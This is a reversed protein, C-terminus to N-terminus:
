IRQRKSWSVPLMKTTDDIRQAALPLSPLLRQPLLLPSRLVGGVADDNGWGPPCGWLPATCVAPHNAHVPSVLQEDGCYACM